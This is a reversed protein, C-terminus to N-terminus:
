LLGVKALEIQALSIIEGLWAVQLVTIGSLSVLFFKMWGRRHKAKPDDGKLAHRIDRVFYYAMVPWLLCRVMVFLMVFVVGVTVKAIPFAEGLGIVGHKEDFNAM